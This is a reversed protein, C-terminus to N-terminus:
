PAMEEKKLYTYPHACNNKDTQEGVRRLSDAPASLAEGNLAEDAM